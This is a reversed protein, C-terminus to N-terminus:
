FNIRVFDLERCRRLLLDVQASPYKKGLLFEQSYAVASCSADRFSTNQLFGQVPWEPVIADIVGQHKRPELFILHPTKPFVTSSLDVNGFACSDLRAELFDCGIMGAAHSPDYVDRFGPSCFRFIGEFTCNEFVVNHWNLDEQRSKAIFRCNIFTANRVIAQRARAYLRIECDSVTAHWAITYPGAGRGIDLEKGKVAINRIDITTRTIECRRDQVPWQVIFKQHQSVFGEAPILHVDLSAL